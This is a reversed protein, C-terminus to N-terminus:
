RQAEPRIEDLCQAARLDWALQETNSLRLRSAKTVTDLGSSRRMGQAPFGTGM